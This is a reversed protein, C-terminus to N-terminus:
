PRLIPRLLPSVLGSVGLLRLSFHLGRHHLALHPLLFAAAAPTAAARLLSKPEAVRCGSGACAGFPAECPLHLEKLCTMLWENMNIGHWKSSRRRIEQPFDLHRFQEGMKSLCPEVAEKVGLAVIEELTQRAEVPDDFNM